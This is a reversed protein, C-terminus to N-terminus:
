LDSIVTSSAINDPILVTNKLYEYELQFCESFKSDDGFDEDIQKITWFKGNMAEIGEIEKESEIRSVFLFVLRKTNENEFTYKLLFKFPLEKGLTQVISNRVALNIEHSFLMYKEFPHDLLGPDLIDEAKRPHLYIQGNCVLAIRVVPHLFRNTMKVSESKAVRGTVEGRENVIPLWEEKRLKKVISTIKINEYVILSTIGIAPIWSYIIQDYDSSIIDSDKLFKYLVVLFIHLTCFYQIFRAIEFFENMFTKQLANEKKFFHQNIYSKSLRIVILICVAFIEPLLIYMNYNTIYKNGTMWIILTLALSSFAVLFMLGSRTTKTLLKVVLEGVVAVLLSLFLAHEINDIINFLIIFVLFPTLGLCPNMIYKKAGKAIM